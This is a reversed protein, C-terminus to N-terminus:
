QITISNIFQQIAPDMPNDDGDPLVETYNGADVDRLSDLLSSYAKVLEINQQDPPLGHLSAVWDDHWSPHIHSIKNDAIYEDLSKMVADLEPSPTFTNNM